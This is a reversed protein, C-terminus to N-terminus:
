IENLSLGSFAALKHLDELAREKNLRIWPIKALKITAGSATKLEIILGGYKGYRYEYQLSSIESVPYHISHEGRFINKTTSIIFEKGFQISLPYRTNLMIIGPSITLIGVGWLYSNPEELYLIWGCFIGLLM